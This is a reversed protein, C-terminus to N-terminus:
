YRQDRDSSAMAHGWPYSAVVAAGRARFEAGLRGETAARLAQALEPASAFREEPRKALAIALVDDVERPLGPVLESPRPPMGYVVQFVAQPMDAGTFAPRGTLARYVVVGLSFIDSRQDTEDGRAQEPSLYGPTGIVAGQTLTGESGQLKAVGFDLIKWVSSPEMLFLNQPKLDRHVIGAQHAADLGRAIQETFDVVESLQLKQQHRLAWALDHGELMEMAIYPAGGEERGVAYVTIVNPVHLRSAIEAERMFRTFLDPDALATPNLLKVAARAGTAVHAAAYVEGMAGRGIVEALVYDGARRGTYAGRGGGAALAADLNQNAEQLLAEREQVARLAAGLREVANRTAGRSLRAQWITIVLIYPVMVLAFIRVTQPMSLGRFLGLEPVVGFTVLVALVVYIIVSILNLWLAWRGDDGQGFFFIGLMVICPGASFVGTYYLTISVGLVGVTGFVRFMFVDYRGPRAAGIWVWASVVGTLIISAEMVNTLWKAAPLFPVFAASAACLFVITRGFSSARAAEESRLTQVATTGATGETGTAPSVATPADPPAADAPRFQARIAELSPAPKTTKADVNTIDRFLGGM